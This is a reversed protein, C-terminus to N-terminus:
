GTVKEAVMFHKTKSMPRTEHIRVTDGVQLNELESHASFRHAKKVAKKYLPHHYIHEVSVVVTKQMGVSVVKGIYEKGPKNQKNSQTIQTM